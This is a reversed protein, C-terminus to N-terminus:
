HQVRGLAVCKGLLKQLTEGAQMCLNTSIGIVMRYSGM